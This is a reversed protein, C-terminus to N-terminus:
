NKLYEAVDKEDISNYGNESYRALEKMGPMMMLQIIRWLADEKNVPDYAVKSGTKQVILKFLLSM